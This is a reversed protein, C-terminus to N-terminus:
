VDQEEWLKLAKLEILSHFFKNIFGIEINLQHKNIEMNFVFNQLECIDQTRLFIKKLRLTITTIDRETLTRLWSQMRELVSRPIDLALKHLTTQTVFQQIAQEM